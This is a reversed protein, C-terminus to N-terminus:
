HRSQDHAMRELALRTLEVREDALLPTALRAMRLHSRELVADVEAEEFLPAVALEGAQPSIARSGGWFTVGEECGVRNCFVVQCQFLQAYAGLMQEYTREIAPCGPEVGRFPSAAVALLLDMGQRSLVYPVSPHWLDECIVLGLPGWPTSVTELRSGPSFYRGEDFMGYTPLYLKRHLYSLEGGHLYVASCYFNFADSEEVLGVVLAVKRSADLLEQFHPSDLRLAVEPVLDRLFYGTLSLEPFVLLDVEDAAARAALDLHRHLNAEVAGLRPAMQALRVHCKSASM